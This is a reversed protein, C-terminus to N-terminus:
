LRTWRRLCLDQAQLQCIQGVVIEEHPSQFNTDQSNTNGELHSGPLHELLRPQFRHEAVNEDEDM